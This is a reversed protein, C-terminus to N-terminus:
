DVTVRFGKIGLARMHETASDLANVDALPGLRVRYLTQGGDGAGAQVVLPGLGRAALQAKFRAANHESAFAGVQLYLRPVPGGHAADKPPPPNVAPHQPDIAQVEVLATGKRIMDLRKGAAYSLDIIRNPVFPGRDNVKVVVQRGNELNTVRVWTPLPLDRSAATMAYMNYTTGTSTRRGHFKPGYWSAVGRKDYGHASALVYYRKGHVVYSQNYAASGPQPAYRVPPASACAALLSAVGLAAPLRLARLPHRM